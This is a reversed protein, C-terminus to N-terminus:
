RRWPELNNLILLKLSVQCSECKGASRKLAQKTLAKFGKSTHPEIALWCKKHWTRSPPQVGLGCLRCTLESNDLKFSPLINARLFRTTGATVERALPRDYTAAFARWGGLVAAVWEPPVDIGILATAAEEDTPGSKNRSANVLARIAAVLEQPNPCIAM